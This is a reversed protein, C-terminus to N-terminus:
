MSWVIFTPTGDVCDAAGKFDKPPSSRAEDATRVLKGSFNVIERQADYGARVTTIRLREHRRVRARFYSALTSRRKSAAGLRRGPAIASYWLFRPAPAFLREIAAVDGRAYGTVFSRILAKTAAGDCSGSAYAPAVTGAGCAVLAVLVLVLRM